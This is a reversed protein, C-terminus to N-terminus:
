IFRNEGLQKIQTSAQNMSFHGMARAKANSLAYSFSGHELMEIPGAGSLLVSIRVQWFM